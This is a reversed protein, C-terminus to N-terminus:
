WNGIDDSTGDVGDPGLSWLDYSNENHIGPAQIRYPNGWPDRILEPNYVYPGNWHEAETPSEPPDRLEEISHPYRGMRLHFRQIAPDLLGTAGVARQAADFQSESIDTTDATIPEAPPPTDRSIVFWAVIGMVGLFLAVLGLLLLVRTNERM